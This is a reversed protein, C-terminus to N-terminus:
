ITYQWQGVQWQYWKWIKGTSSQSVLQIDTSKRFSGLLSYTLILRNHYEIAKLLCNKTWCWFVPLTKVTSSKLPMALMLQQKGLIHKKPWISTLIREYDNLFPWSTLPCMEYTQYKSTCYKGEHSAGYMFYSTVCIKVDNFFSMLPVSFSM